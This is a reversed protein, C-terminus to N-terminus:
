RSSPITDVRKNRDMQVLQEVGSPDFLGRSRLSVDSLVDGVVSPLNGRLRLAERLARKGIRGRQEYEGRLRAAVLGPDFDGPVGAIGCM